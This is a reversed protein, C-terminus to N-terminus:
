EENEKAERAKLWKKKQSLRVEENTIKYNQKFEERFSSFTGNIISERVRKVLSHMFTLNHLTALRYALLESANFLHHIYAASFHTCAYCECGLMIPEAQQAYGANRINHRGHWTFLAGNRAVRTPLVCDFIDIGRAIGEVIDEPSGVGMLYRPKEVPLQAATEELISYMIEKPEGLSLGGIAYGEFDLTKLYDVSQKRLDSYIGGQVIGYLSQNNGKQAQRCRLAWRHTRHMEAEVKERSDDHAACEDLVMMVDAGLAEQYEVALEPTLFHESGDIHSRFIVGEDTVKRLPALSFVQYGGSDTIIAGNWGMFNHLGGMKKIVEIGPRLYLHYNNALIMKFGIGSIEEPTLTKVTAQSGVPLFVPTPVIGHATKLEGARASESKHLLTFKKIM